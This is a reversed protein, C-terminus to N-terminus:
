LFRDYVALEDLGGGGELTPNAESPPAPNFQCTTFYSGATTSREGAHLAGGLLPSESEAGPFDSITFLAKCSRQALM